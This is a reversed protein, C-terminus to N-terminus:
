SPAARAPGYRAGLRALRCALHTAVALRVNFALWAGVLVAVDSPVGVSPMPPQARPTVPVHRDGEAPSSFEPRAALQLAVEDWQSIERPAWQSAWLGRLVPDAHVLAQGAAHEAWLDVYAMPAVGKRGPYRKAVVGPKERGYELAIFIAVCRHEAALADIRALRPDADERDDEISALWEDDAAVTAKIDAVREDVYHMFPFNLCGAIYAALPVPGDSAWKAWCEGAVAMGIAYLDDCETEGFGWALNAKVRSRAIREVTKVIIAYEDSPIQLARRSM